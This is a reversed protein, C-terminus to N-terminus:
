APGGSVHAEILLKASKMTPTSFLWTLVLMSNAETTSLEFVRFRPSSNTRPRGTSARICKQIVFMRGAFFVTRLNKTPRKNHVM